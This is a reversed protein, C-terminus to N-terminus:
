NIINHFPQTFDKDKLAKTDDRYLYMSIVKENPDYIVESFRRAFAQTLYGQYLSVANDIYLIFSNITSANIKLDKYAVFQSQVGGSFATFSSSNDWLSVLTHIQSDNVNRTMMAFDYYYKVDQGNFAFEGLGPMGTDWLLTCHLSDNLAVDCLPVNFQNTAFRIHVSKAVKTTDVNIKSDSLLITKSQFNLRWYCSNIVDGGIIGDYNPNAGESAVLVPINFKRNGVSMEVNNSIAHITTDRKHAFLKRLESNKAEPGVTDLPLFFVKVSDESMTVGVRDAIESNNITTLSCGTDWVMRLKVGNLQADVVIYGTSDEFPIESTKIPQCGCMVILLVAYLLIFKM